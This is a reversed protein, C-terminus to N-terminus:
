NGKRKIAWGVGHTSIIFGLKQLVKICTNNITYAVENYLITKGIDWLEDYDYQSIKVGLIKMKGNDACQLLYDSLKNLKLNAM